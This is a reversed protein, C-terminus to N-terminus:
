CNRRRKQFKNKLKTYMIEEEREDRTHFQPPPSLDVGRFSKRLDKKDNIMKDSASLQKWKKDQKEAKQENGM